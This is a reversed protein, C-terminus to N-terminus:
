PHPRPKQGQRKPGQVSREMQEQRGKEPGDEEDHPKQARGRLLQVPGEDDRQRDDERGQPKGQGQLGEEVPPM